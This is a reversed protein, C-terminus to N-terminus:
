LMWTRTIFTCNGPASLTDSTISKTPSGHASKWTCPLGAGRLRHMVTDVDRFHQEANASFIIVDDLYVLCIRWKLGSLIIDLACLSTAPANTLGFPM